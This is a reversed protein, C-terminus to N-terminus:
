PGRPSRWPEPPGPPFDFLREPRPYPTEDYVKEFFSLLFRVMEDQAGSTLRDKIGLKHCVMGMLHSM